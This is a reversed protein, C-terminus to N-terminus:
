DLIAPDEWRHVDVMNRQLKEINTLPLNKKIVFPVSPEPWDPNHEKIINRIEQVAFRASEHLNGVPKCLESIDVGFCLSIFRDAIRNAVISDVGEDFAAMALNAKWGIAYGDDEKIANAVTDMAEKVNM